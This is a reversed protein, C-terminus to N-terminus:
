LAIGWLKHLGFSVCPKGNIESPFYLSTEVVLIIAKVADFSTYRDLQRYVQAKNPKGKKVEIALGDSTMFDVRNRPGLRYEKTHPIGNEILLQGIQNQIEYEDTAVNIRLESLINAIEEVSKQM